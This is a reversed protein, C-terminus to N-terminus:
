PAAAKGAAGGAPGDDGPRAKKTFGGQDGADIKADIHDAADLLDDIARKQTRGEKAPGQDGSLDLMADAARKKRM